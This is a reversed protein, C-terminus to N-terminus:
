KQYKIKWREELKGVVYDFEKTWDRTPCSFSNSSNPRITGITTNPIQLIKKTELKKIGLIYFPKECGYCPYYSSKNNCPYRHYFYGRNCNAYFIPDDLPETLFGATLLPQLFGDSGDKQWFGVDWKDCPGDAPSDPYHSYKKYFNDLAIQLKQIDGVRKKDRTLKQHYDFWVATSVLFISVVVTIITSRLNEPNGQNVM